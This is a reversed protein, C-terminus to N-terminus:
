KKGGCPNPQGKRERTGKKETNAFRYDFDVRIAGLFDVRALLCREPEVERAAGGGESSGRRNMEQSALRIYWSDKNFRENTGSCSNGVEFANKLKVIWFRPQCVSQAGGTGQTAGITRSNWELIGKLTPVVTKM